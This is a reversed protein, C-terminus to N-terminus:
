IPWGLGPRDPPLAAAAVLGTVLAGALATTGAAPNLVPWTRQWLTPAPPGLQFPSRLAPNIPPLPGLVPPRPPPLPTPPPTPPPPPGAVAVPGPPQHPPSFPQRPLTPDAPTGPM